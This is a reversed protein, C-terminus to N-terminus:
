RSCIRCEIWVSIFFSPVLLCAAALPIMWAVQGEIPGLWAMGLICQTILGWPSNEFGTWHWHNAAVALPMMLVFEISLAIGWALPVGLLTSALNALAVPGITKRYSLNLWRHILIAELGVVPMFAIVMVPLQLFIMPIGADAFYLLHV